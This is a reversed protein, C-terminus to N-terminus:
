KIKCFSTRYEKDTEIWYHNYQNNKHWEPGPCYTGQEAGINQIRAVLPYIELKEKLSSHVFHDWSSEKNLSEDFASKLVSWRNSWTAWGWPTFWNRFAYEDFNQSKESFLIDMNPNDSNVYGSISFITDDNRYFERLCECYVLFDKAPITDDELHIHFDNIQLGFDWCQYINKNCGFREPNIRVVTQNPRFNKAISIVEENVPECFIFIHYNEIDYCQDLNSLIRQTYQPRNYLSISITKM